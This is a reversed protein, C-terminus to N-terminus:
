TEKLNVNEDAIANRKRIGVHFTYMKIYTLAVYAARRIVRPKIVGIYYHYCHGYHIGKDGLQSLNTTRKRRRLFQVQFLKL